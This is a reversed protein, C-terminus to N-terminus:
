PIRPLRARLLKLVPFHLYIITRLSILAWIKEDALDARRKDSACLLRDAIPTRSGATLYSFRDDSTTHTADPGFGINKVLNRSPRCCKANQRWVTLIWQYDWTPYPINRALRSFVSLWYIAAIPRTWWKRLCIGFFDDPNVRYNDWRNAWTAWGWMLSYDSLYYGDAEQNESFNSGSISYVSPDESYSDLKEACFNFFDPDPLCDDELIIAREVQSFVWNLGTHVRECCGLNVESYNLRVDCSWTIGETVTRRVDEVLAAEGVKSSRPGDAVVLLIRPKARAIAELVQRTQTPRNFAILVVPVDLYQEDTM